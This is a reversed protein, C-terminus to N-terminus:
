FFYDNILAVPVGTCRWVKLREVLKKAHVPIVGLVKLDKRNKMYSM